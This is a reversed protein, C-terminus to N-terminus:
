RPRDRRAPPTRAGPVDDDEDHSGGVNSAGRSIMAAGEAHLRRMAEAVLEAMAMEVDALTPARGLQARLQKMAASAIENVAERSLSPLEDGEDKTDTPVLKV